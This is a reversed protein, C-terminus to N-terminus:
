CRDHMDPILMDAIKFSLKDMKPKIAAQIEDSSNDYLQKFQILKAQLRVIEDDQRQLEDTREIEKLTHAYIRAKLAEGQMPAKKVDMYNRKYEPDKMAQLEMQSKQLEVIEDFIAM